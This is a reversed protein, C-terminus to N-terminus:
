SRDDKEDDAEEDPEEEKKDKDDEQDESEDDEEADGDDQTGGFKMEGVCTSHPVSFFPILDRRDTTHFLTM